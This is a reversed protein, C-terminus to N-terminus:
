KAESAIVALQLKANGRRSAGSNHKLSGGLLAHASGLPPAPFAPHGICGCGRTYQYYARANIVVTAGLDGPM